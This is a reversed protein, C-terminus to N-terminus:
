VPKVHLVCTAVNTCYIPVWFHESTVDSRNQFAFDLLLGVGSPYYNQWGLKCNSNETDGLM